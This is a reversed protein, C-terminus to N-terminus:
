PPPHPTPPPPPLALPAHAGQTEGPPPPPPPPLPAHEHRSAGAAKLRKVNDAFYEHALEILQLLEQTAAREEQVWANMTQEVAWAAEGLRMLGVMRGSGKLTHFGRRITTLAEKNAHQERVTDLHERNTALGEDSEELYVGLLEGDIGEGSGGRLKGEERAGRAEEAEGM